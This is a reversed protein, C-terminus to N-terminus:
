FPSRRERLIRALAPWPEVRQPLVELHLRASLQDRYLEREWGHMGSWDKREADVPKLRTQSAGAERRASERRMRSWWVPAVPEPKTADRSRPEVGFAGFGDGSHYADHLEALWLQRRDRSRVDWDAASVEGLITEVDGPEPETEAALLEDPREPELGLRARCGRSWTLQRAGRMADSHESWLRRAQPDGSGARHAIQWSTYHGDTALKGGIGTLELGMKSLYKAAAEGRELTQCDVGHEASPMLEGLDGMKRLDDRLRRIGEAWSPGTYYAGVQRQIKLRLDDSPEEESLAAALTRVRAFTNRVCAAWREYLQETVDEPPVGGLFWIAHLHPHWGSSEGWTQEAARVDGLHGISRRLAQGANGAKLESYARALLVRLLRLPMGARHRLTFTVLM